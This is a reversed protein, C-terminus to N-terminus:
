ELIVEPAVFQTYLRGISNIAIEWTYNNEVYQRCRQRVDQLKTLSDIYNSILDAMATSSTDRFLLGNSLGSLIEMTGGVPTGLVPVGCSLAELTVLGFGELKESPVIFLDSAQYYETLQSDEVFGLLRVHEGLGRDKIARRLEEKLYGEGAIVLFVDKHREVITGMAVLLNMLGYRAALRRATFLIMKNKPLGLKHRVQWKNTCPRFKQIDVGGPIIAIKGEPIGHISQAEKKMFESLVTVRDSKTLVWKEVSRALRQVFSLIWLPVRGEYDLLIEKHTPAHFTYVKKIHKSKPAVYVGFAPFPYHCHILDFSVERALRNFKRFANLVSFLPYINSLLSGQWLADYRYVHIGDYVEYEPLCSRLKRTLLYIHYGKRALGRITHYIVVEAGGVNDPFFSETVVLITSRQM